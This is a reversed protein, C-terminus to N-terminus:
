WFAAGADGMAWVLFDRRWLEVAWWDVGVSVSGSVAPAKIGVGVGSEATSLGWEGKIGAELSGGICFGWCETYTAELSLATVGAGLKLGDKGGSAEASAGFNKLELTFHPPLAPIGMSKRFEADRKEADSPGILMWRVAWAEAKVLTLSLEGKILDIKDDLWKISAMSKISESHKVTASAKNDELKLEVSQTGGPDVFSLPQNRAYGYLNCEVPSEACKAPAELFLPDPTWFMGLAPDYDRVGMRVSGLDADYGLRAYDLVEAVDDHEGRLGYPTALHLGGGVEATPTGRPDTAVAIFTGSDIVGVTVGEITVPLVLGRALLLGGAVRASVVQGNVRKLLRQGREDHVYAIQRGGRQASALEGSPGYGLTLDGKQILRGASDWRHRVGGVTLDADAGIAHLLGSAGYAYDIASARALWGRADHLIDRVTRAGANQYTERHVLGREDLDWDLGTDQVPGSLRYGRRAGTVADHQVVLTHGDAFAVQEVQGEVNRTITYLRADGLWLERVRGHADLRTSEDHSAVVQGSAYVQVTRGAPSGDARYRQEEVVRRWDDLVTTQWVLRGADDYRMRRVFGPGVVRSLRGRQGDRSGDPLGIGDHDLWFDEVTAGVHMVHAVRGAEDYEKVESRVLQGARDLVQKEVPLGTAPDYSWAITALGDRVVRGPRGYEDFRIRHAGSPTSVDVLRGLADYVFRHESGVEDRVRVTRQSADQGIQRVTGATAITAVLEDDSVQYSTNKHGTVGAQVVRDSASEHGFGTLLVSERLQAGQDYLQSWTVADLGGTIAQRRYTFRSLTDGARREVDGVIWAGALRAMAVSEGDAAALETENRTVGLASDVLLERGLLGPREQTAYRYTFREAPQATTSGNSSRWTSALREAGDYAFGQVEGGNGRNERLERLADTLPDISAVRLVTGDVATLTQPRGLSDYTMTTTGRGPTGQTLLRGNADYTNDQLIISGGPARQRIQEIQGRANRTLALEYRFDLSTDGHLGTLVQSAALCHLDGVLEPPSALTEEKILVGSPVITSVRRACHEREYEEFDVQTSVTAPGAFQRWGSLATLQRHWGVGRSVVREYVNESFKVVQPTRPDVTLSGAVVGSVDDDNLFDIRESALTPQTRTATAFGVLFRGVTHWIPTGYTYDHVVTGRGAANVSLRSLVSYRHIIGPEPRIRAYGLEVLTGKGDDARRLLGTSPTALALSQAHTGDSFTVEANGSGRLDAFLPYSMAFPVNALGPVPKQLFQHGQNLYVGVKRDRALLLDSLGDGNVDGHSLQFDNLTTLKTGSSTVVDFSQGPTQFRRKGIGYWVTIKSASRAVLDARGDGNMDVVWSASPDVAPTILQVPQPTFAYSTASGTNALVTIKGNQLKVVDPQQDGDLDALRVNRGLSWNSGVVSATGLVIGIRDCVTITTGAAQGDIVVVQPDTLNPRMRALLRPSSVDSPDPRCRRNAGSPRPPLDEIVVGAETRRILKHTFHHELDTLGNQEMDVMTSRQPLLGEGGSIRLYEDLTPDPQLQAGALQEVGMDYEYTVAPEAFGSPFRRTLSTLYFAPGLPSTTYGLDYTWRVQPAGAGARAKVVIQKIRQDIVLKKGSAYSDIPKALAEPVFDIQYQTGDGRGGWTVKDLRLRGSANAVWSLLTRDGFVNEVRTLMWAYTGDPATVTAAFTYTAGDGTVAVWTGDVRRVRVQSRLGAPYFFGQDGRVLRGWPSAFDDSDDYRIEGLLRTRQISLNVSWGIGLDGIGNEASYSPIVGIQLAGRADPLEIPLPLGFAGRALDAAGFSLRSLSGAISGRRPASLTPAQVLVDQAVEAARAPLALATLAALAAGPWVVSRM